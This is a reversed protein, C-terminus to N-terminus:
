LCQQQMLVPTITEPKLLIRQTHIARWCPTSLVKNNVFFSKYIGGLIGATESDNPFREYLGALYEVALEPSGCKALEPSGCKSTSLALLQNVRLTDVSTDNRLILSRERAELYRGQNILAEVSKIENM